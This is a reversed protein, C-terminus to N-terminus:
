RKLLIGFGLRCTCQLFRNLCCRLLPLRSSCRIVKKKEKGEKQCYKYFFVPLYSGIASVPSEKREFFVTYQIRIQIQMRMMERIMLSMM